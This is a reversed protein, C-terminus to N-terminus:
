KLTRAVGEETGNIVGQVTVTKGSINGIELIAVYTCDISEATVLAGGNYFSDYVCDVAITEEVGNITLKFAVSDYAEITEADACLKMILRTQEGKTQTGIFLDTQAPEEDNCFYIEDITIDFTAGRESTIFMCSKYDAGISDFYGAPLDIVVDSYEPTLSTVPVYLRAGPTVYSGFWFAISNGTLSSGFNHTGKMRVVMHQFDAIDTMTNQIRLYKNQNIIMHLEGNACSYDVDDVAMVYAKNDGYGTAIPTSSLGNNFNSYYAKEEEPEPTEEVVPYENCFYIEDITINFQAGRETTIFLCSKYDAGISDFYGAPLDIVVDSYDSTLSTVTVYLRAGPTGYSGFWFAISNGTLGAGWSNTGKMRVVMKQYDAVDTMSNQIRLYDGNSLSVNLAGDTCSYTAGVVTMVYATNSGNGTATPTTSLGSNFDSFYVKKNEAANSVVGTGLLMTAFLAICLISALIKKM